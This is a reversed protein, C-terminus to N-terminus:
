APTADCIALISVQAQHNSKNAGSKLTPIMAKGILSMYEEKAGFSGSRNKIKLGDRKAIILHDCIFAIGSQLAFCFGAPKVARSVESITAAFVPAAMVGSSIIEAIGIGQIWTERC